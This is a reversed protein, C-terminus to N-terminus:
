SADADAAITDCRLCRLGAPGLAMPLNCWQCHVSFVPYTPQEESEHLLERLRDAIAKYDDALPDAM